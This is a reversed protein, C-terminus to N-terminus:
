LSKITRITDAISLVDVAPKSPDAPMNEEKEKIEGFNEEFDILCKWATSLGNPTVTFLHSRNANNMGRIVLDKNILTKISNWCTFIAGAQIFPHRSFKSAKDILEMKSFCKRAEEDEAGSVKACVYEDLFTILIAWGGSFRQPKYEKKPSKKRPSKKRPSKPSKKPSKKGQPTTAKRPRGRKRKKPTEEEEIEMSDEDLEISDLSKTKSRKAPPQGEKSQYKRELIILIM